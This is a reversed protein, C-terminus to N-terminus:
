GLALTRGHDTRGPPVSLELWGPEHDGRVRVVVATADSSADRRHAQSVIRSALLRPSLDGAVRVIEPMRVVDEAGDSCLVLTDGPELAISFVDLGPARHAGKGLAETWEHDTTLQHCRRKRILHARSDGTHGIVGEDRGVLLLTATTAMGDLAPDADAAALVENMAHRLAHAVAATAANGGRLLAGLEDDAREIFDELADAALHAAVEGGPRASAGDCVLYLGLGDHVVFADENHFEDGGRTAGSGESSM